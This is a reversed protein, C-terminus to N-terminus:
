TFRLSAGFCKKANQGFIREVSGPSVERIAKVLQQAYSPWNKEKSLMLWDSGYMVRDAVSENGDLQDDLVKALREKACKCTAAGVHACQLGEWYGLDAYVHQGRPRAMLQAFRSTWDTQLEDGGFHGLSVRPGEAGSWFDADLLRQWEEPGSLGSHYADRGMSPGAHALVPVNLEQCKRWFKQLATDIEKGTPGEKSPFSANGWPRFGNPPYIKVAVFGAKVADEVLALSREHEVIDTWPNYSIVPLMYNRSVESLKLHLRMQDEHASRPACALWRDFDVLAGLTRRVGITGNGETFAAQYTLLNSLRSSMIYGVFALIGEAYPAQDSAAFSTVTGEDVLAESTQMALLLSDQDLRRIRIRRETTSAGLPAQMLREYQQRFARGKSARTLKDFEKSIAERERQRAEIARQRRDEDSLPLACLASLESFEASATPAVEGLADAIPALLRVLEGLVGGMSYAVPGELYGKITVDSANFFHAHADVCDPTPAGQMNIRRPALFGTTASETFGAATPPIQPSPFPRLECCGSIGVVAAGGLMALAERRTVDSEAPKKNQGEM